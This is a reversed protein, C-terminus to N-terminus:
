MLGAWDKVAAVAKIEDPPIRSSYGFEKVINADEVCRAKPTNSDGNRSKTAKVVIGSGTESFVTKTGWFCDSWVVCVEFWECDGRFLGWEQPNPWKWRMANFNSAPKSRSVKACWKFFNDLLNMISTISSDWLDPILLLICLGPYVSLTTLSHLHPTPHSLHQCSLHLIDQGHRRHHNHCQCYCRCKSFPPLNTIKLFFWHGLWFLPNLYAM